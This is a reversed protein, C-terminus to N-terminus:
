GLEIEEAADPHKDLWTKAFPCQPVLRRNGALAKALAAQVLVGGLGRGGLAEPVITHVLTLVGDQDTDDLHALHGDVKLELRHRETSDVVDAVNTM